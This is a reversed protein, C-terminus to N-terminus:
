AGYLDEITQIIREARAAWTYRKVKEFANQALENALDTDALARKVAEALGSPDDPKILFATEDSLISTISPLNSAIIPRKAAMYEFMKIPTMHERYHATDPFPMLLIDAAKQFLALREQKMRPFLRVRSSVNEREALERYAVCEDESGGAAVFVIDEPLARLAKFIEPLGKPHGMTTFSGTYVLLQKDAFQDLSLRKRAEFRDIDIDFMELEVGNPAVLVRREDVGRSTFEKAIFPNTAVVLMMRKAFRMRMAVRTSFWDHCEYVVKFGRLALLYGLELDRTYIVSSKPRKLFLLRFALLLKQLFGVFSGLINAYAVFDFVRLTTIKFSSKLGYFTEASETIDNKRSPIVLEIDVRQRAFQECLRAVGFGHAKYTPFRINAIYTINM